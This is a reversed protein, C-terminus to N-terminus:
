QQTNKEIAEQREREKERQTSKTKHYGGLIFIMFLVFLAVMITDLISLM